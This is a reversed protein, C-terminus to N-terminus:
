DPLMPQAAKEDAAQQKEKDQATQAQKQQKAATAEKKDKADLRDAEKLARKLLDGKQQYLEKEDM